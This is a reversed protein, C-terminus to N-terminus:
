HRVGKESCREWPRQPGMHALSSQELGEQAEIIFLVCLKADLGSFGRPPRLPADVASFIICDLKDLGSVLRNYAPWNNQGAAASLAFFFASM